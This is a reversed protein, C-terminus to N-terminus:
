IHVRAIAVAQESKRQEYEPLEAWSVLDPHTKKLPDKEKGWAWGNAIMRRVWQEHIKRALVQDPLMIWEAPDLERKEQRLLRPVGMVIDKQKRSMTQWPPAPMVHNPHLPDTMQFARHAEHIIWAIQEDTFDVETGM